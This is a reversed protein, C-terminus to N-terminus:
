PERVAHYLTLFDEYQDPDQGMEILFTDMQSRVAPDLKPIKSRAFGGVNRTLGPRPTDFFACGLHYRSECPYLVIVTEWVDAIFPRGGVRSTADVANLKNYKKEDVLRCILWAWVKDYLEQTSLKQEVQGTDALVQKYFESKLISAKFVVTWSMWASSYGTRDM